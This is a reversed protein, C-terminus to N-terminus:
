FWPPETASIAAGLEWVLWMAALAVTIFAANWLRDKM